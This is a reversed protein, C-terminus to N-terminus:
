TAGVQAAGGDSFTPAAALLIKLAAGARWSFKVAALRFLNPPAASPHLSFLSYWM